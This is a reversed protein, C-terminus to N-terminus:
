QSKHMSRDLISKWDCKPQHHVQRPLKRDPTRSTGISVCYRFRKSSKRVEFTEDVTWSLPKECYVHKGKKAAEIAIPVHLHDPTAVIVADVDSAAVLEQYTLYRKPQVGMEGKEGNRHVNAGTKLAREANKDFVDCVATIQINLDEQNRFEKLYDAWFIEKKAKKVWDDIRDPHVFGLAKM